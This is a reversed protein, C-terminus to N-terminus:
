TFFKGYEAVPWAKIKFQEIRFVRLDVKIGVGQWAEETQAADLRVKKELDTGLGAINSDKLDINKLKTLHPM